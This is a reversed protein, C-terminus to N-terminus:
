SDFEQKVLVSNSIFVRYIIGKRVEIRLEGYKLNDIKDKETAIFSSLQQTVSEQPKEKPTKINM